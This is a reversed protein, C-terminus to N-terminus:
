VQHPLVDHYVKLLQQFVIGHSELMYSGLPLVKEVNQETDKNKEIHQLSKSKNEIQNIKKELKQVIELNELNQAHQETIADRLDQIELDKLRLDEKLEQEMTDGIQIAEDQMELLGQMEAIQEELNKIRNNFKEAQERLAVDSEARLARQKARILEKKMADLAGVYAEVLEAATWIFCYFYSFAFSSGCFGYFVM